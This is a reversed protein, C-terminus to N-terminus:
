LNKLATCNFHQVLSHHMTQSDRRVTIRVTILGGDLIRGCRAHAAATGVRSDWSPSVLSSVALMSGPWVWNRGAEGSSRKKAQMWRRRWMCRTMWLSVGTLKPSPSPLPADHQSLIINTAVFINTVVFMIKNNEPSHTEDQPSRIHSVPHQFGTTVHGAHNVIFWWATQTPKHIKPSFSTM